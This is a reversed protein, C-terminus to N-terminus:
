TKVGDAKGKFKHQTTFWANIAIGPGARGQDVQSFKTLAKEDDILLKALAIGLITQSM